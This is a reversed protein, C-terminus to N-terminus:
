LGMLDAENKHEINDIGQEVPLILKVSVYIICIPYILYVYAKNCNVALKKGRIM